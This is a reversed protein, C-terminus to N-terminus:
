RERRQEAALLEEFEERAHRLRSYVTNVPLGTVEAIEPATMQEWEALLLVERKADGLQDLLRCARELTQTTSAAEHPSPKEDAVREAADLGDLHGARRVSRRQNRAVRVVIGFLFTKLSSRGEFDPLRRHLVVFAEQVADDLTSHPVGLGRMSSWVFGLYQEYIQGFSPLDSVRVHSAGGPSDVTHAAAM